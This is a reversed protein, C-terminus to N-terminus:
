SGQQPRLIAPEEPTFPQWPEGRLIAVIRESARGDGYPNAVQAMRAHVEPHDLLEGAAALIEDARTGVLRVAGAEVAEPRETVDRLVLAPVGLSPAEEQVGGSDSVILHARSMLRVFPLYALPEILDIRSASKGLVELMPRRVNPNPHMPYVVRVDPYRVVLRALASAIERMGAGFSERRHATVLVLREGDLMEPLGNAADDDGTRDRVTALADVVTNGTVHVISPDTGEELLNARARPTPAFLADGVLDAIRRNLEEPFPQALDRTRLGAEIHGIRVRRYFAVLAGCMATTTDGQVLVWDPEEAVLVPDLAAIARATLSALTQDPRMLDLDHDPRISFLDLVQDLMERHQATACVVVRIGHLRASAIVPAMKIAEPRTGVIAIVKV